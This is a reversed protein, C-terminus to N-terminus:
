RGSVWGHKKVRLGILLGILLGNGVRGHTPASGQEFGEGIADASNVLKSIFPRLGAARSFSILSARGSAAVPRRRSLFAPKRMSCGRTKSSLTTKSVDSRRM